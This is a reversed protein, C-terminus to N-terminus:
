KRAGEEVITIARKADAAHQSILQNTTNALSIVKGTEVAMTTIEKAIREAFVKRAEREEVLLGATAERDTALAELFQSQVGSIVSQWQTDRTLRDEALRDERDKRELRDKEDRKAIYWVVLLLVAVEPILRSLSDLMDGGLQFKSVIWERVIPITPIFWPVWRHMDLLPQSSM